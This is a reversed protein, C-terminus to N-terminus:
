TADVTEEQGEGEALLRAREIQLTTGLLIIRDGAQLSISPRYSQPHAQGRPWVGVVLAGTRARLDTQGLSLGVLTSQEQVTLEAIHAARSQASLRLAEGHAVVLAEARAIQHEDGMLILTDGAHLIEDPGPHVIERGRRQLVAVTAGTLEPIRGDGLRRHALPSIGPVAVAGFRVGWPYDSIVRDLLLEAEADEGLVRTVSSQLTRQLAILQRWLLATVIIALFLAGLLVAVRTAPLVLGFPVLLIAVTLGVLIDVVRARLRSGADPRDLNLLDRVLKRYARYTSWILPAAVAAAVGMVLVPALFPWEPFRAVVPPGISAAVAIWAVFLMLNATLIRIARRLRAQRKPDNTRHPGRWNRLLLHGPRTVREPLRGAMAALRPTYHLLLPTLLLLIMMAGVVVDRLAAHAVNNTEATAVLILSFEGVTGLGLATRMADPFHQGAAMAAPINVIFKTALFVIAVLASIWLVDVARLVDVSLGSAVFFAAMAVDRVTIMSNRVVFRAGAEAAAVGAVFAGLEASGAWAGMAGFSLVVAVTVLVVLEHIHTRAVADLLRPVLILAAATAFVLFLALKGIGLLPDLLGAGAGGLLVIVALLAGAMVDEGLLVGLMRKRSETSFGPLTSLREGFLTSSVAVAIGLTLAHSGPWGLATAVAAVAALPVAINLITTVFTKTLIEQVRKLDLELGIFFLLALVALHVVNSTISADLHVTALAPALAVGLGLYGLAPPLRLRHALWGAAAVSLGLVPLLWGDLAVGHPM